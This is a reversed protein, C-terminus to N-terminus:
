KAVRAALQTLGAAYNKETQLDLYKDRLIKADRTPPYPKYFFMVADSILEPRLECTSNDELHSVAAEAEERILEEFQDPPLRGEIHETGIMEIYALAQENNTFGAILPVANIEDNSRAHRPHKPLFPGETSNNIDADVIPGWTEISASERILTEIEVNRLCDM